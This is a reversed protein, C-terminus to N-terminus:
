SMMELNERFVSKVKDIGFLFLDMNAEVNIELEKMNRFKEYISYLYPIGIPYIDHFNIFKFKDYALWKDSKLDSPVLAFSFSCSAHTNPSTIVHSFSDTEVWLAILWKDTVEATYVFNSKSSIKKNNFFGKDSLKNAIIADLLAFRDKVSEIVWANSYGKLKIEFEKRKADQIAQDFLSKIQKFEDPKYLRYFRLERDFETMWNDLQDGTQLTRKRACEMTRAILDSKYGPFAYAQKAKETLFERYGPLKDKFPLSALCSEVAAFQLWGLDSMKCTYTEYQNGLDVLKGYINGLWEMNNVKEVM